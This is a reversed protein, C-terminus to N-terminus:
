NNALISHGKALVKIAGVLDANNSYGCEVCVFEAKKPKILTYDVKLFYHFIGM